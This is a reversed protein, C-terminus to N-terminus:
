ELRSGLGRKEEGIGDNMAFGPGALECLGFAKGWGDWCRGVRRGVDKGGGHAFGALGLGGGWGQM